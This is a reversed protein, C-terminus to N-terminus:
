HGFGAAEFDRALGDGDLALGSAEQLFPPLKVPPFGRERAPCAVVTKLNERWRGGAPGLGGNGWTVIPLCATKRCGPFRGPEITSGGGFFGCWRVAMFVKRAEVKEPR